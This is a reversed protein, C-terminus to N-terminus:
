NSSGTRPIGAEIGMGSGAIGAGRLGDAVQRRRRRATTRSRIRTMTMSTAMSTAMSPTMSTAMSTAMSPTMPFAM